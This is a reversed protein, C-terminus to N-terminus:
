ENEDDLFAVYKSHSLRIGVNRVVGEIATNARLSVAFIRPDDPLEPLGGGDDVVIIVHDRVSQGLASQVARLLLEPRRYTAIVIAVLSEPRPRLATALRSVEANEFRWMMIAKPGLIVKNRAEAIVLKRRRLAQPVLHKGAVVLRSATMRM